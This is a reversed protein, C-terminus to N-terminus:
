TLETLTLKLSKKDIYSSCQIIERSGLIFLQQFPHFAFWTEMESSTNGMLDILRFNVKALKAKVHCEPKANLGRLIITDQDHLALYSMLSEPAISFGAGTDFIFPILSRDWQGLRSKFNLLVSFQYYYQCDPISSFSPIKNCEYILVM